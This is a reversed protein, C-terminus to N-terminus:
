INKFKNNLEKLQYNWDWGKKNLRTKEILGNKELVRTINTSGDISYVIGQGELEKLAQYYKKLWVNREQAISNSLAIMIEAKNLGEKQRKAEKQCTSCNKDLTHHYKHM